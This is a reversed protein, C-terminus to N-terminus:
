KNIWSSIYNVPLFLIFLLTLFYSGLKGLNLLDHPLFNDQRNDLLVDSARALSWVRSIQDQVDPCRLQDTDMCIYFWRAFDVVQTYKHNQSVSRNLYM